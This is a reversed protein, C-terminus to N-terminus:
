GTIVAPGKGPLPLHKVEPNTTRVFDSHPDSSWARSNLPAATLLTSQSLLHHSVQQWALFAALLQAEKYSM